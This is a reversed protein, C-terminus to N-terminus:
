MADGVHQRGKYCQPLKGNLESGGHVVRLGSFALGHVGGSCGEVQLGPKRGKVRMERYGHFAGM